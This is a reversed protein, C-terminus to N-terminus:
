VGTNVNCTIFTRYFDTYSNRWWSSQISLLSLVNQSAPLIRLKPTFYKSFKVCSPFSPNYFFQSIIFLKSLLVRLTTFSNYTQFCITIFFFKGFINHLHQFILKLYFQYLSCSTTDKARDFAMAYGTVIFLQESTHM